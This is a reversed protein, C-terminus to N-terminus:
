SKWENQLVHYQEPDRKIMEEFISFLKQSTNFIVEKKDKGSQMELEPYFVISVTSDHNLYTAVPLIVAKTLYALTAPGQPMTKDIGFFKHVLGSGAIDRDAVLCIYRNEKLASVLKSTPNDDHAVVEMGATRRTNTFLEFLEPPELREAVVLPNEGTGALWAGALEFSGLHTLAIIVGTKQEKAKKHAQALHTAGEVIIISDIDEKRRPSSLWFVDFWYAAYYALVNRVRKNLGSSELNPSIIKHIEEVNKKINSPFLAFVYALFKALSIAFKRPIVKAFATGIKLSILMKNNSM